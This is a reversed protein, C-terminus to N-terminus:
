TSLPISKTVVDLSSCVQDENQTLVYGWVWRVRWKRRRGGADSCHSAGAGEPAERGPRWHGKGATPLAAIYRSLGAGSPCNFRLSNGGGGPDPDKLSLSGNNNM